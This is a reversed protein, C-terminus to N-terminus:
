TSQLIIEEPYMLSYVGSLYNQEDPTLVYIKSSTPLKFYNLDVSWEVCTLKSVAMQKLHISSVNKVAENERESTDQISISHLSSFDSYFETPLHIHMLKSDCM